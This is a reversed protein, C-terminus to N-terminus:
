EIGYKLRFFMYKSSNTIIYNDSYFGDALVIEFGYRNKVWEIFPEANDLSQHEHGLLRLVGWYRYKNRIDKDRKM